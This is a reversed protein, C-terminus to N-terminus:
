YVDSVQLAKLPGSSLEPYAQLVQLVTPRVEANRQLLLSIVKIWVEPTGYRRLQPAPSGISAMPLGYAVDSPDLLKDVIEDLFVPLVGGSFIMYLMMGVRWSETVHEADRFVKESNALSSELSRSTALLPLRPSSLETINRLDSVVIRGGDTVGANLDNLVYGSKHIHAVSRLISQAIYVRIDMSLPESSTLNLLMVDVTVPPSFTVKPLAIAGLSEFADNWGNIEGVYHAGIVGTRKTLNLVTEGDVALKRLADREADFAVSTKIYANVREAKTAASRNVFINMMLSGIEGQLRMDVPRVNLVLGEPGGRLVGLYEFLIGSGKEDVGADVRKFSNVYFRLPDGMPEAKLVFVRAVGEWYALEDQFLPERRAERALAVLKEKVEYLVVLEEETEDLDRIYQRQKMQSIRHAEKEEWAVQRENLVKSVALPVHRAALELMRTSPQRGGQVVDLDVGM